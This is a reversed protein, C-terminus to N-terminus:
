GRSVGNGRELAARIMEREAQRNREQYVSRAHAAAERRNMLKAAVKELRRLRLVERAHAAYQRRRELKEAARAQLAGALEDLYVPHARAPRRREMACFREHALKSVLIADLEALRTSVPAPPLM